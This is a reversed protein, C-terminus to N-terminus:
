HGIELQVPEFNLVFDSYGAESDAYVEGSFSGWVRGYEPHHAQFNKVCPVDDDNECEVELEGQVVWGNEHKGRVHMSLVMEGDCGFDRGFTKTVNPKPKEPKPKPLPTKQIIVDESLILGLHFSGDDHRVYYEKPNPMRHIVVWNRRLNDVWSRGQIPRDDVPGTQTNGM